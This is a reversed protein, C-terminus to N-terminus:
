DSGLRSNENLIVPSLLQGGLELRGALGSRRKDSMCKLAALPFVIHTLEEGTCAM